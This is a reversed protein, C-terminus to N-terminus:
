NSTRTQLFRPYNTWRLLEYVEKLVPKFLLIDIQENEHIKQEVSKVLDSTLNLQYESGEPVFKEFIIKLQAKIEPSETIVATEYLKEYYPIESDNSFKIDKSDQTFSLNNNDISPNEALIKLNWSADSMVKNQCKLLLSIMAEYFLLNEICVEGVLFKKFERYIASEPNLVQEFTKIEMENIEDPLKVKAVSHRRYKEHLLEVKNQYIHVAFVPRVVIITHYLIFFLVFWVSVPVGKFRISLFKFIIFGLSCFLSIIIISKIEYQIGITEKYNNLKYKKYLSYIM